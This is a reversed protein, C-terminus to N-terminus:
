GQYYRCGKTGANPVFSLTSLPFYSGIFFWLQLVITAM